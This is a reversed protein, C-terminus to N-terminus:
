LCMKYINEIDKQNLVKFSEDPLDNGHCINEAMEALKNDDIGLDSLNPQLGLTNFYFDYIKSATQKGGEIAPLNEDVGFAVVGLHHVIPATREDLIYEMWRPTLIALGHGHTIDYYASLEHEMIHLIAYIRKGGSLFGNLAWSSAWMLNARAEYNEPEKLALPAYKIVTKILEDMLSDVMYLGEDHTFFGVDFIHSLIDVSGSATQYANVSYTNTPDLFSAKPRQLPHILGYKQNTEMNSIVGGANMESGTASLTLITVIPLCNTIEAKHSVLDWCDGDYYTASGIVKTADITSGGGIALLVDIKEKKCIDAGKNVTTHRPNPEIGGFEFVEMDGAKLEAMVKDYLGIRKISGGGYTLLVRNGFQKLEPVLNGLQDEGFYIKTPISYVFKQNM